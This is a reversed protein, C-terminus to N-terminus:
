AYSTVSPRGRMNPTLRPVTMHAMALCAALPGVGAHWIAPGARARACVSLWCEELVARARLAVLRSGWCPMTTISIHRWHMLDIPGMGALLHDSSKKEQSLHIGTGSNFGYICFKFNEDKTMSKSAGLYMYMYLPCLSIVNKFSSQDIPLM